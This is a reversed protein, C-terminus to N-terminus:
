SKHGPCIRVSGSVQSQVMFNRSKRMDEVISLISVDKLLLVSEIMRDMGVFTGTRGVGASCHILVPSRQDGIAQRIVKRFYLLERTTAPVGHDPWATYAFQTIDKVQGGGGGWV